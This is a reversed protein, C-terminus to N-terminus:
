GHYKKHLFRMDIEPRVSKVFKVVKGRYDMQINENEYEILFSDLVPWSPEQGSSREKMWQMLDESRGVTRLDLQGNDPIAKEREHLDCVKDQFKGIPDADPGEVTPAGISHKALYAAIPRKLVEETSPYRRIWEISSPTLGHYSHTSIKLRRLKRLRTLLCLGGMFSLSLLWRRIYLDELNPCVRSLYGFMTLANPISITDASIGAVAFHLTRLGRCVWIRRQRPTAPRNLHNDIYDLNDLMPKSERTRRYHGAHTLLDNVDFDSHYYAVHPARLHLLHPCFCLILHLFSGKIDSSGSSPLLELTTLRSHVFNTNTCPKVRLLISELLLSGVEYDSFSWHTRERFLDFLSILDQESLREMMISFHFDGLKPNSEILSAMFRARESGSTHTDNLDSGTDTWAPVTPQIRASNIRLTRLEPCAKAVDKIEELSGVLGYVVLACLNKMVPIWYNTSPELHQIRPQVRPQVLKSYDEPELVLNLLGPLAGM